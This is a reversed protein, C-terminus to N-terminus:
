CEWLEVKTVWPGKRAPKKNPLDFYVHEGEYLGKDNKWLTFHGTADDWGSVHWNIIGTKNLFPKISIKDDARVVNPRGYTEKLFQNFEQVRLGYNKRDAGPVTLLLRPLLPIEYEPRGAYNFSKSVRVTCTNTIWRADVDGGIQRKVIDEKDTPYNAALADFSPLKMPKMAMKPEENEVTTTSWPDRDRSKSRNKLFAGPVSDM